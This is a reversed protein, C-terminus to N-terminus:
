KKLVIRYHTKGSRLRKIAENIETMPYEEIIAQINHSSAFELMQAIMQPSGVQSSSISKQGVMLSMLNIDLNEPPIGVFHLRGKPKLTRLYLNWNLNVDVTSIIFDFKNLATKIEDKKNTNLTYKAGLELAEKEKSQSSTFATVECGWANLFQVALHGLGGIGIVAVKSSPKIDYQVLPNFVTVGACFLPGATSLEISDPIVVVSNADAKVTDAFGGHHGIITGKAQSCLNHEKDGCPECDNCYGCHWGLGVNQGVSLHTVDSGIQSIKGVVEHGPVLPYTSIGWDNDIMNLDSHCLGCYLVDVIVEQPLLKGLEYSFPKLDGKEEFVAFGQVM